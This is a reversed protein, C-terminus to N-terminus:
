RHAPTLQAPALNCSHEAVRGVFKRLGPYKKFFDLLAKLNECGKENANPAFWILRLLLRLSSVHSSVIKKEMEFDEEYQEPYTFDFEPEQDCITYIKEPQKSEANGIRAKQWLEVALKKRQAAELLMSETLGM